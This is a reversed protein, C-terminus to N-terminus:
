GGERLLEYVFDFYDPDRRAFGIPDVYMEEIGMSLIETAIVEGRQNYYVKGMYPNLFKDVKTKESPAYGHNPFLDILRVDPEGQTRRQWFAIAKRNAGPAYLELWHSMEHVTTRPADRRDQYLTRESPSYYARQKRNSPIARIAIGKGDVLGPGVLRNFADVGEQWKKIRAKDTGIYRVNPSAPTSSAIAKRGASLRLDEIVNRRRQLEFRRKLLRGIEAEDSNGLAKRLETGTSDLKRQIQGIARDDKLARAELLRRAEVGTAPRERKGQPKAPKPKKGSDPGGALKAEIDKRMEAATAARSASTSRSGDGWAPNYPVERGREFLHAPYHMGVYYDGKRTWFMVPFAPSKVIWEKDLDTVKGELYASFPHNKRGNRGKSGMLFEHGQRKLKPLVKDRVELYTENHARAQAANLGTRLTRELQWAKRDLSEGIAKALEPVLQQSNRGQLLGRQLIQKASNDFEVILGKTELKQLDSVLDIARHPIVGSLAAIGKAAAKSGFRSELWAVERIAAEAAWEGTVVFASEFEENLEDLLRSIGDDLVALAAQQQRAGFTDSGGLKAIRAVMVDRERQYIELLRRQRAVTFTELEANSTDIVRALIPDDPALPM